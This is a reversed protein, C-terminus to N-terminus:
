VQVSSNYHRFYTSETHCLERYRRYYKVTNEIILQQFFFWGCKFRSLVTDDVLDIIDKLIDCINTSRLQDRFFDYIEDQYEDFSVEPIYYNFMRVISQQEEIILCTYERFQILPKLKAISFNFMRFHFLFGIFDHRASDSDHFLDYTLRLPNYHRMREICSWVHDVNLEEYLEIRYDDNLQSSSNFEQDSFYGYDEEGDSIIEFDGDNDQEDQLNQEDVFQVNVLNYEVVGDEYYIDYHDENALIIVLHEDNEVTM